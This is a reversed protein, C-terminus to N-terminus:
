RKKYSWENLLVSSVKVDAPVDLVKVFKLIFFYANGSDVEEIKFGLKEIRSIFKRMNSVRSTVDALYFFGGVRLVRNIEKLAGTINAMMLSLCCIAVDFQKEEAPIKRIDCKIVKENIPYKDFSAVNKFEEAIECSGCGLDAIQCENKENEHIKQIIKKKPDSPWKKLQSAYCKQYEKAEKESLEKNNYIKENLLRFKGGELKKQLKEVIGM